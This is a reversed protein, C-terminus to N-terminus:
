QIVYDIRITDGGLPPDTFTITTSATESYDSERLGNLYVATTNPRYAMGTTFVTNVGDIAGSLLEGFVPEGEGPPGAPGEKGQTVAFIIRPEDPALAVTGQPVQLEVGVTHPDIQVEFVLPPPETM